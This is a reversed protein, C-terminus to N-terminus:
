KKSAFQGNAARGVSCGVYGTWAIGKSNTGSEAVLAPRASSSSSSSSGGSVTYGGYSSSSYNAARQREAEARQQAAVAEAKQREAVLLRNQTLNEEHMKELKDELQKELPALFEKEIQGTQNRFQALIESAKAKHLTTLEGESKEGTLATMSKYKQCLNTIIPTAYETIMNSICSGPTLPKNSRLTSAQESIFKILQSGSNLEM